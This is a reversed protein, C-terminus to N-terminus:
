ATTGGLPSPDDVPRTGDVFAILTKSHAAAYAKIADADDDSYVAIAGLAAAGDVTLNNGEFNVRSGNGAENVTVVHSEDAPTIVQKDVTMTGNQNDIVPMFTKDGITLSGDANLMAALAKAILDKTTTLTDADGTDAHANAATLTNADGSDAHADAASAAQSVAPANAAVAGAATLYANGDADTPAKDFVNAGKFHNDGSLSAADKLKEEVTVNVTSQVDKMAAKLDDVDMALAYASNDIKITVNQTPSYATTFGFVLNFPTGQYAPLVFPDDGIAVSIIHQDAYGEVHGLIGVLSINFDKTIDHDKGTTDQYHNTVVSRITFQNEGQSRANIPFVVYDTFSDLTLTSIDIGATIVKESVVLGDINIAKTQDDALAFMKAGDRTLSKESYKM